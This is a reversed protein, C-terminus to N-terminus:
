LDTTQGLEKMNKGRQDTTQTILMMGNELICRTQQQVNNEFETM